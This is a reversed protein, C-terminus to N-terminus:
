DAGNLEQIVKWSNTAAAQEAKKKSYGKGTAIEKEDITVVATFEKNHSKGNESVIKFRILKNEKQSWEIIKSKYNGGDNIVKELDFYGKILEEVVFHRCTKYGMDLYVAGVLAEMADGFISTGAKNNNRRNDHKILKNLGTKIALDNLSERNVIRSRIETLFGEDKFPYKKFLYEAVIAGLIADGLFELRQNTEKSSSNSDGNRSVALKYLQLNRPRKGVIKLVSNSLNSKEKQTSKGGNLLKFLRDLLVILNEQISSLL